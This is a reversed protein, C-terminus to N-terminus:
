RKWKRELGRQIGTALLFLAATLTLLVAACAFGQALETENRYESARVYIHFPLAEFKDTLGRVMGTRAVVGTLLIVATDEAARGIALIAGSLVGRSAAPLLLYRLNQWRTLGLCPGTLRSSAPLSCLANQTTHIMVPLVLMAICGAALLLGTNAEPLVTRRLMLILAVGFLGMVISPVGALIDVAWKLVSRCGPSAYEALYIGAGIGVPIALTASLLVLWLSGVLAPWLGDFVPSRLLIADLVATEGFFLSGTLAPSARYFVYGVLACLLLVLVAASSWAAAITSNGWWTRM